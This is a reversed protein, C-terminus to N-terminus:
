QSDKKPRPPFTDFDKSLVIEGKYAEAIGAAIAPLDETFGSSFHTVVLKPVGAEAALQGLKQPVLHHQTLHRRMYAMAKDSMNLAIAKTAALVSDLEIVESVLLDAGKALGVVAASPGTDGTYVISRDATDFRLSLSQYRDSLPSNAPFSYHSNKVVTVKFGDVEISDGDRLEHVQALDDPNVPKAGVGFGAAISPALGALLGEVLTSTGPPGYIQLPKRAQTQHRLGILALLGGFHDAHLHSIFVNDINRTLVGIKMLQGATGDGVDVLSLTGDVTLLNAPQGRHPVPVPGGRSGLITFSTEAIAPMAVGSLLAALAAGLLLIKKM